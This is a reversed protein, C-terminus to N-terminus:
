TLAAGTNTLLKDKVRNLQLGILKIRQPGPTTVNAVLEFGTEEDLIFGEELVIAPKNYALAEEINIRPLKKDSIQMKIESIRIAKDLLAIGALGVMYDERITGAVASGTMITQSGTATLWQHWTTMQGAGAATMTMDRFLAPIITTEGFEGRGVDVDLAPGPTSLGVGRAAAESVKRAGAWRLGWKREASAILASRLTSMIGKFYPFESKVEEYECIVFDGTMKSRWEQSDSRRIWSM